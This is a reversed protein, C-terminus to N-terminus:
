DPSSPYSADTYVDKSSAPIDMMMRMKMLSLGSAVLRRPLCSALGGEELGMLFLLALTRPQPHGGVVLRVTAILLVM